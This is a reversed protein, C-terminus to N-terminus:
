YLMVMFHVVENSGMEAEIASPFNGFADYESAMTQLFTKGSSGGSL